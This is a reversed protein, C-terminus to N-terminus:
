GERRQQEEWPQQARLLSPSPACFGSLGHQQQLFMGVGRQAMVHEQRRVVLFGSEFDRPLVTPDNRAQIQQSFSGWSFSCHGMTPSLTWTCHPLQSKLHHAPAAASLTFIMAPTKLM